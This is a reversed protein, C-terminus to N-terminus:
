SHRAGPTVARYVSRISIGLEESIAQHSMGAAKLARARANREGKGQVTYMVESQSMDYRCKPLPCTLCAPALDCGDDHYHQHEPLGDTRGHHRDM